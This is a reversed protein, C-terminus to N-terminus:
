FLNDNSHISLKETYLSLTKRLTGISDLYMEPAKLIFSEGKTVGSPVDGASEAARRYPTFDQIGYLISSHQKVFDWLETNLTYDRLKLKISYDIDADKDESKLKKTRDEDSLDIYKRLEATLTTGKKVLLDYFGNWRIQIAQILLLVKPEINESKSFIEYAVIFNNLFRKLERPSNEVANSILDANEKITDKYKEHIVDKEIFDTVLKSIDNNNWKPLTIPIQIMKKIYHEGKVGSKEYEIDILKTVIDHSIGIVYIFGEMGLFVKMSELVELTKKPSCRDLDDVFVVIRFDPNEDMIKKLEKRIDEFGDFYLTDRDVEALLEVKSNFEHKFSEIVDKTIEGTKEGLFKSVISSAIDPTRKILNTAGRKL